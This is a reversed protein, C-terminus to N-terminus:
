LMLIFIEKILLHNIRDERNEYYAYNNYYM